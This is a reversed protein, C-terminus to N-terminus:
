SKKDTFLNLYKHFSYTRYRKGGTIETLIGLKVFDEILANATAPTVNLKKTIDGSSVLPNAYLYNMLKKAKPLKKGLSIIKENEVEEKLKLIHNFTQIGRKSTEIVAVIFFKIWQTLNNAARVNNLNDYYLSRHKEFYDSLYLTPKALVGSSVLFLTILLRGIRGNGDLFPHITEFQYHALAAKILPPVNLNENHLFKELDSMLGPVETHPPPIFVADNITAGGIWNQSKRFEGPTKHEGRVGHMLIKHAEKLLRTSLPLKELMSISHNMAEIYNQVERWDERREPLLEENKLLVEQIETKTGEIRSSQTAEKVIHMRIFIDVDPVYLSFANLSGVKQDAESLLSNIKPDVWTWEINIINPIFSKHQFEQRYQGAKFDEIKM